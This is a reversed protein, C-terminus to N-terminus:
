EKIYTWVYYQLVRESRTTVDLCKENNNKHIINQWLKPIIREQNLILLIGTYLALDTFFHDDNNEYGAVLIYGWQDM